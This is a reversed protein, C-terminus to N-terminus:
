WALSEELHQRLQSIAETIGEHQLKLREHGERELDHADHGHAHLEQGPVKRPSQDRSGASARMAQTHLQIEDEHLDMEREHMRAKRDFDAVLNEVQHILELVHAHQQRWLQLDKRWHGHESSWRAHEKDEVSEVSFGMDSMKRSGKVINVVSFGSSHL